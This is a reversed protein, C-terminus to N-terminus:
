DRMLKGDWGARERAKEEGRRAETDGHNHFNRSRNIFDWGSEM